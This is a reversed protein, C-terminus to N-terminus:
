THRGSPRKDGKILGQRHRLLTVIKQRVQRDELLRLLM